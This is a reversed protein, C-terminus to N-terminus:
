YGDKYWGGGKLQFSSLSILKKTEGGCTEPDEQEDAVQPDQDMAKPCPPNPDAFKMM